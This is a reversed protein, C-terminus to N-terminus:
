IQGSGGDVHLEAGTVHSSESSALFLAAGAIEDPDGIRGIPAAAASAALMQQHQEESLTLAQWGPTL